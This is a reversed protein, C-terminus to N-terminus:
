QEHKEKGIKSDFSYGSIDVGYFSTMSEIIQASRALVINWLHDDVEGDLNVDELTQLIGRLMSTTKEIRGSETQSIQEAKGEARALAAKGSWQAFWARLRYDKIDHGVREENIDFRGINLWTIETGLDEKISNRLSPSSLRDLITERPDGTIPAIIEDISNRNIYDTIKSDLRGQVARGWKTPKRDKGVSQSYVLKWIAKASFPYPDTTTRKRMVTGQSPRALRYGFQFDNVAVEIGDKTTAIIPGAEWYQEELSFIEEVHQFRPIFHFGPGLVRAPKHLFELLVANGREVYLWGPGGIRQLLNIDGDVTDAKGNSINLTPLLKGSLLFINDPPGDFMSAILYRLTSFYSPLEYIDQLYRAGLFLAGVIAVLPGLAYRIINLTTLGNRDREFLLSGLVGWGLIILLLVSIRLWRIWITETFLLYSLGNLTKKRKNKTSSTKEQM